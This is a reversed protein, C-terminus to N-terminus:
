ICPSGGKHNPKITKEASRWTGWFVIEKHLICYIVCVVIFAALIGFVAGSSDILVDRLQGTRGPVFRQHFEDTCAYFASAGLAILPAFRKERLWLYWLFGLLAYESFHATKRVIFSFGGIIEAQSSESMEDLDYIMLHALLKCFRGSTEDSDDAIQASFCFITVMLAAILIPYILKLKKM